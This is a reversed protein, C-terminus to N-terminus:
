SWPKNQDQHFTRNVYALRPLQRPHAYVRDPKVLPLAQNWGRRSARSPIPQETFFLDTVKGKHFVCLFQAKRQVLDFFQEGQALALVCTRSNLNYQLSLQLVDAVLYLPKDVHFPLQAPFEVIAFPLQPRLPANAM